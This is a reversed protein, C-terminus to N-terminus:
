RRRRLEKLVEDVKAEVRDVKGETQRQRAELDMRLNQIDSRMGADKMEVESKLSSVAAMAGATQARAENIVWLGFGGLSSIVILGLVLGRFWSREEVRSM